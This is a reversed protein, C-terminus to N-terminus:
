VADSVQLDIDVTMEVVADTGRFSGVVPAADSPHAAAALPIHRDSVALGHTPDFGRWGGGPIYIEPWAHLERRAQDLDGEQYGSVFRAPVGQARCTEMFLVTLDRCSGRLRELTETAEWPPGKERHITEWDNYLRQTLLSLFAPLDGDAHRTTAQAFESVADTAVASPHCSRYRALTASLGDSMSLPVRMSEAQPLYQFPNTRLTEVQGRCSITLSETLGGFWAQVAANGEADILDAVGDPTPSFEIEFQRLRQDANSRPVLRVIHPELFVTRSFRYITTHSIEYLM